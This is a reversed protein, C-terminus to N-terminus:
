LTRQFVRDCGCLATRTDTRLCQQKNASGFTTGRRCASFARTSCCTATKVGITETKINDMDTFMVYARRRLFLVKNGRARLEKLLELRTMSTIAKGNLLIPATLDSPSYQQKAKAGYADPEMGNEGNRAQADATKGEIASSFTRAMVRHEGSRGMDISENGRSIAYPIVTGNAQQPKLSSSPPATLSPSMQRKFDVSQILEKWNAPFGAKFQDLIQPVFGRAGAVPFSSYPNTWLHVFHM